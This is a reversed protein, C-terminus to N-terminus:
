CYITIIYLKKILVKPPCFVFVIFLHDHHIGLKNNISLFKDSM